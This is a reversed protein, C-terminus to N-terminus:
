AERFLRGHLLIVAFNIVLLVFVLAAGLPWNMSFTFKEYIVTGITAFRHGGLLQPTVFASITFCFVLLSGAGIGPLSLPVHVRRLV